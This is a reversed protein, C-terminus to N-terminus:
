GSRRRYFGASGDVPDCEVSAFDRGVFLLGGPRALRVLNEGARERVGSAIRGLVAHAIVLDFSGYIPVLAAPREQGLDAVISRLLVRPHLGRVIDLVRPNIDLITLRIPLGEFAALLEGTEYSELWSDPMPIRRVGVEIRRFIDAAPRTEEALRGLYRVALGPGVELMDIPRGPATAEVLARATKLEGALRRPRTTTRLDM